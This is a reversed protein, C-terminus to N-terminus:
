KFPRPQRIPIDIVDFAGAEFQTLSRPAPGATGNVIAHYMPLHM